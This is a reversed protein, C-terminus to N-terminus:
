YDKYRVVVGDLGISYSDTPRDIFARLRDMSSKSIRKRNSDRLEDLITSDIGLRLKRIGSELDLFTVDLGDVMERKTQLNLDRVSLLFPAYYARDFLESRIKIPRDGGEDPDDLQTLIRDRGIYTACANRTEPVAGDITAVQALQNKAANIKTGLKSQDTIGKAEFLHWTGDKREGILDPEKPVTQNPQPVFVIAGQKKLFEVHVLNPISLVKESYFKSFAMGLNYSVIRKKDLIHSDFIPHRRIGSPDSQINVAVLALKEFISDYLVRAM